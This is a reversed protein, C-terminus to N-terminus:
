SSHPNPTAISHFHAIYRCPAEIHPSVQLTKLLYQPVLACRRSVTLTLLVITTQVLSWAPRTEATTTLNTGVLLITTQVLLLILLPSHPGTEALMLGLLYPTLTTFTIIIVSFRHKRFTVTLIMVMRPVWWIRPPTLQLARLALLM